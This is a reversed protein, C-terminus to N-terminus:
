AFFYTRRETEDIFESIKPVGTLKDSGLPEPVDDM